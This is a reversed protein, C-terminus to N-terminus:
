WHPPLPLFSTLCISPPFNSSLSRQTLVPISPPHVEAPPHSKTSTSSPEAEPWLPFVDLLKHLVIYPPIALHSLATAWSSSRLKLAVEPKSPSVWHLDSRQSWRLYQCKQGQKKQWPQYFPTPRSSWKCQCKSFSIQNSSLWPSPLLFEEPM